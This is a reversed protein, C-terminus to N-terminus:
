RRGERGKRAPGGSRGGREPKEAEDRHKRAPGKARRRKKPRAHPKEQAPVREEGPARGTEPEEPTEETPTEEEPLENELFSRVEWTTEKRVAALALRRLDRLASSRVMQKIALISAPAMSLQRYGMGVLIRAALPDAAMEGCISIPKRARRAARHLTRLARLVAPHLPDFFPALSESNRNIALIYQTLDNTGVSVFDLEDLLLDIIVVASPVEIMAGQTLEDDFPVRERRLESKVEELLMRAMRLEELGSVVPYLVCVKGFASARLIARMQTKFIEKHRLLLRLGRWGLYPNSDKPVPIYTPFKDGGIDLVRITVPAPAMREAVERYSEFQEHESPLRTRSMFPFETRYLGVGDAGAKLAASIESAKGINAFLHVREGDSTVSPLSVLKSLARRRQDQEKKLERYHDLVKKPPNVYVLGNTGDVVVMDQPSLAEPLGQVAGVAPAELSRALIAAHSTPGLSDAVFGLIKKRDLRVTIAPTIEEAVVVVRDHLHWLSPDSELMLKGLLQKGVDRIDGAREKMVGESVSSLLRTFKEITLSLAGEANYKEEVILREIEGRLSPDELVSGQARFIDAESKGLDEEIRKILEALESRTQNLAHKYRAIESDVQPPPIRYIPVEEPGAEDFVAAKGIAVGPSIPFGRFELSKRNEKSL